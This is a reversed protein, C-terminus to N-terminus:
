KLFLNRLILKQRKEVNFILYGKRLADLSNELANKM